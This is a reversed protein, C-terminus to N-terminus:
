EPFAMINRHSFYKELLWKSDDSKIVMDLFNAKIWENAHPLRPDGGTLFSPVAYKNWNIGDFRILGTHSSDKGRNAIADMRQREQSAPFLSNTARKM